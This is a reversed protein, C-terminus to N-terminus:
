IKSALGISKGSLHLKTIHGIFASVTCRIWVLVQV